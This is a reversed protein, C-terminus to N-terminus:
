PTASRALDRADQPTTRARLNERVHGLFESAREEPAKTALSVGIYLVLAIGLGWVGSGEDLLRRQTVELALVVADIRLASAM